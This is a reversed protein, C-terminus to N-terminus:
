QDWVHYNAERIDPKPKCGDIFAIKNKTKLSKFMARSWKHYNIGNFKISIIAVGPNDSPHVYYLNFRGAIQNKTIKDKTPDM